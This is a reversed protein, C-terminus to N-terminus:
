KSVTISKPYIEKIVKDNYSEDLWKELFNGAEIGRKRGDYRILAASSVLMNITMFVVLCWTVWKGINIPIKEIWKSLVPYMKKLWVVAAIGWFFCFLLNIRGGLNFQMASYDWFVQGFVIETFVSCVYEYTGGLLTGMLFIYGDSKKQYHYLMWTVLAIAMGWVVSFDGWVLSSRSMWYGMTLRCFITEVVDGLFAGIVFLLFLKYFSCGEAFVNKEKTHIGEKKTAPYAKELRKITHQIIWANLRLSVNLLHNNVKDAKPLRPSVGLIVAYTGVSDLILIGLLGLLGIHTFLPPLIAFFGILVPNLLCLGISGFIGGIILSFWCVYGDIHFRFVSYDWWKRHYIRNLTKGAIWEVLGFLISSGIFLFFPNEKLEPLLVTIGIMAIGYICCLPGGIVGRNVFEKNRCAAYVCEGVWGIFSYVFFLFLTIYM